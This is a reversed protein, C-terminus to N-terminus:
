RGERKGAYICECVYVCVCVYVCKCFFGDGRLSAGKNSCRLFIFFREQEGDKRGEDGGGSMCIEEYGGM